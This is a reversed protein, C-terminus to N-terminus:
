EHGKNYDEHLFQARFDIKTEPRINIEMQQTEPKKQSSQAAFTHFYEYNDRNQENVLM